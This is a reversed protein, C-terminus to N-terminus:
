DNLQTQSKALRAHEEIWPVRWALISSHTAMRKELPDEQGLSRVLTEQIALLNKVMQAVLSAGKQGKHNGWITCITIISQFFLQARHHYWQHLPMIIGCPLPPSLLLSPPLPLSPFFGQSPDHRCKIIYKYTYKSPESPLSDAQLASSRLKIGSDPLDELSPRPFGTWYEQRSFEM